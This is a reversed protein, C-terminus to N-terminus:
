VRLFQLLAPKGERTASDDELFEWLRKQQTVTMTNFDFEQRSRAPGFAATGNALFDEWASRNSYLDLPLGLSRLIEANRDLWSRWAREAGPDPPKRRYSM